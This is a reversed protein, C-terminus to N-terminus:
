SEEQNTNNPKSNITSHGIAYACSTQCKTIHIESSGSDNDNDVGDCLAKTVQWFCASENSRRGLSGRESWM